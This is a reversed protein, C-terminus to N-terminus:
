LHRRSLWQSSYDQRIGGIAPNDREEGEALGAEYILQTAKAEALRRIHCAISPHHKNDHKKQEEPVIQEKIEPRMKERGEM